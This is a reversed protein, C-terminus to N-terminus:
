SQACEFPHFNGESIDNMGLRELFEFPLTERNLLLKQQNRSIVSLVEATEPCSTGGIISPTQAHPTWLKITNDIGSTAVTCDFPHCQVCNVVAEDGLLVKILRGTRKEWIFCRGDDSGSAIFESVENVLSIRKSSIQGLNCHGVYRQKMDIGFECEYNTDKQSSAPPSGNSCDIQCNDRCSETERQFILNLSRRFTRSEVDISDDGSTSAVIDLEMEDYDSDERESQLNAQSSDDAVDSLFLVDSLKKRRGSVATSKSVEDNEKSSQAAAIKEKIAKVQEAVEPNSPSLYLAAMAYDLANQYKGLQKLAEALYYYPRFSLVDIGRAGHCDRIAMSVDSKWSRKLFLAARICLCEHKLTDDIQPGSGDLVENCAEIGRLFNYDKALSQAAVKLLKTHMDLMSSASRRPFAELDGLVPPLYTRKPVDDACYRMGSDEVHNVNMLYAHEGSYSLLVEEGNPSFAVHTLHLSSPKRESLHIPCFYNVCSPPKMKTRCSSSPPLMRRDYLRAFADSGGVLLHHPRSPSVDCSKLALCQKPYDALSKKAGSRLDLLVSRCEQSPSGSPPCCVGERFDHQRLTGDESASWVVNPNGQEVALKKVRRSHCRFLALPEPASQVGQHSLNFLRVEADGAGSVVLEDCTEPIFKTCFINASHGTDVRCSLKREAYNWINIQLDDSGSILFSGRSNWALANVCGEHGELERELALRQILSSHSHLRYNIDKISDTKRREILDTVNGDPFNWGAETM